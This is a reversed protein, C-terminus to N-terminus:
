VRPAMSLAPEGRLPAGLADRHLSMVTCVTVATATAPTARCIARDEPVRHWRAGQPQAWGRRRRCGCGRRLRPPRRSGAGPGKAMHRTGAPLSTAGPLASETSPLDGGPTELRPRSNPSQMHRRPGSSKPQVFGRRLRRRRGATERWLGWDHRRSRPCGTAPAAHAKGQGSQGRVGTLTRTARCQAGDRGERGWPGPGEVASATKTVKKNRFRSAQVPVNSTGPFHISNAGLVNSNASQSGWRRAASGGSGEFM